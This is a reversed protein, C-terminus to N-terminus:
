NGQQHRPESQDETLVESHYNSNGTEEKAVENDLYGEEELRAAIEPSFGEVLAIELLRMENLVDDELLDILPSPLADEEEVVDEDVLSDSSPYSPLVQTTNGEMATAPPTSPTLDCLDFSVDFSAIDHCPDYQLHPSAEMSDVVDQALLNITFASSNDEDNQRISFDESPDEGLLDMHDPPGHLTNVDSNNLIDRTNFASSHDALEASPTLPLLAAGLM